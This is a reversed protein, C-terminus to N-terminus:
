IKRRRLCKQQRTVCNNIVLNVCNKFWQVVLRVDRFSRGYRIQKGCCCWAVSYVHFHFQVALLILRENYLVVTSLNGLM